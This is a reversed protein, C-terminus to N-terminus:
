WMRGYSGLRRILGCHQAHAQNRVEIGARTDLLQKRVAPDEAADANQYLNLEAQLWLPFASDTVLHLATRNILACPIIQRQGRSNRRSVAENPPVGKVRWGRKKGVRDGFRCGAGHVGGRLSGPPLQARRGGLILPVRRAAGLRIPPDTRALAPSGDSDFRGTVM